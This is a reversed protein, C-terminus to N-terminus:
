GLALFTFRRRSWRVRMLIRGDIALADFARFPGFAASSIVPSMSRSPALARAGSGGPPRRPPADSPHSAVFRTQYPPYSQRILVRPDGDGPPAGARAAAPFFDQCAPVPRRPYLTHSM